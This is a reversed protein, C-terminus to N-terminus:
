AAVASPQAHQHDETARANLKIGIYRIRGAIKAKQIGLEGFQRGFTPLAMPEKNNTECWECYDEYLDTATLSSGEASTIRDRNFREVDTDPAQLKMPAQKNDNATLVPAPLNASRLKSVVIPENDSDRKAEDYLKWNAFVVYYGLSSGLEVLVAVMLILATAVWEKSGTSLKSLADVQPDASAVAAVTTTTSLKGRIEDIRSQLKDAEQASGLEALLQHYQSCFSKSATNTATTCGVTATWRRNQKQAEVDQAVSEAPRHQPIWGLRERTKDLETRLDAYQAAQVTREGATDARTQSSFGIASTFSYALCVSWLLAAAAAQSWQKNRLAAFLFFPILAKLGDAAASAIGLLHSDLESHGLSYGFRWNMAASVVLLATAALIGLVGIVHRM